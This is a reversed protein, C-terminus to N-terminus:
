DRPAPQILLTPIDLAHSKVTAVRTGPKRGDRVQSLAVGRSAMAKVTAQIDDCQYAIGWFYSGKGEDEDPVIVELTMKGGRFFLMRGGWKPVTQDLALRVGLEDRFVAITREADPTHLVLHDVRVASTQESASRLADTSSGDCVCLDLGLSNELVRSQASERASAMVLGALGCVEVDRQVLEITTNDLVWSASKGDQVTSGGLLCEYGGIAAELNPVAVVIRDFIRDV